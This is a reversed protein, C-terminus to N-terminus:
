VGYFIGESKVNVRFPTSPNQISQFTYVRVDILIDNELEYDYVINIIDDKLPRNIKERDFSFVIDYDSDITGEGRARSGYFYLGKFEAYKNKIHNRLENIIKDITKNM